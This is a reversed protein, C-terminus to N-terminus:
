VLFSIWRRGWFAAAKSIAGGFSNGEVGVNLLPGQVLRGTRHRQLFHGINHDSEQVRKISLSFKGGLHSINWHWTVQFSLPQHIKGSDRQRPHLLQELGKGAIQRVKKRLPPTLPFALTLVHRFTWVTCTIVERLSDTDTGATLSSALARMLFNKLLTCRQSLSASQFCRLAGRPWLVESFLSHHSLSSHNLCMKNWHSRPHHM